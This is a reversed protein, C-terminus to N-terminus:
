NHCTGFSGPKLKRKKDKAAKARRGELPQDPEWGFDVVEQADGPKTGIEVTDHQDKM